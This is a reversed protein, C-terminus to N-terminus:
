SLEHLTHLRLTRVQLTERMAQTGGKDLVEDLEGFFEPTGELSACYKGPQDPDQFALLRIRFHETKGWEPKPHGTIEVPSALTAPQAAACEYRDLSAQSECEIDHM